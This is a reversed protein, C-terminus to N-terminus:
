GVSATVPYRASLEEEDIERAAESITRIAKRFAAWIMKDTMGTKALCNATARIADDLSYVFAQEPTFEKDPEIDETEM